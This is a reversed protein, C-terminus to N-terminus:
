GGLMHEGITRQGLTCRSAWRHEGVEHLHEGLGGLLDEGLPAGALEM